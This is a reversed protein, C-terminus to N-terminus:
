YSVILSSTRSAKFSNKLKPLSRLANLQVATVKIGLHELGEMTFSKLGIAQQVVKQLNSVFIRVLLIFFTILVSMPGDYDANMSPLLMMSLIKNLWSNNLHYELFPNDGLHTSFTSRLFAYSEMSHHKRLRLKASNHNGSFNM